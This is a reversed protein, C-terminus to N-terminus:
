GNKSSHNESFHWNTIDAIQPVSFNSEILFAIQERYIDFRPRDVGRTPDVAPTRCHETQTM